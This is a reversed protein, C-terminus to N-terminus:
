FPRRRLNIPGDQDTPPAAPAPPKQAFPAPFVDLNHVEYYRQQLAKKRTDNVEVDCFMLIKVHHENLFEAVIHHEMWTELLSHEQACLISTVKYLSKLLISTINNRHEIVNLWKTKLWETKLRLQCQEFVDAGERMLNKFGDSKAVAAM